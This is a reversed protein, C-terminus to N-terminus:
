KKKKIENMLRLFEVDGLQLKVKNIKKNIKDQLDESHVPALTKVLIYSKLAQKFQNQESYFDGIEIYAAVTYSIDELRKAAGLASVLLEHAKQPNDKKCLNALKTCSYYLGEHNNLQRDADISMEYYMKAASINKGDMSIEALNSYASALFENVRVDNSTQICRLYYKIALNTNKDDDLSLAYKFYCECLLPIDSLKEAESLAKKAYKAAAEIDLNNDELESLDLYVRVVMKSSVGAPSYLIRKYIEKAKDFKYVESYIQAISLLIENAKDPSDKLYLQYVKEYLKVAEETDQIKKHCIALKTYIIPEKLAYMLDDKYTLAKKYYVIASSFNFAEEYNQAIEIYEELSQPVANYDIESKNQTEMEQQFELNSINEMKKSINDESSSANLLKSDENSLQFKAAKGQTKVLPQPRYASSQKNEMGPEFGGTRAYSIYKFSQMAAEGIATRGTQAFLKEAEELKKTHYAIEQRMTLRSLFLERDFPKLPLEAEYVDILYKYIKTKTATSINKIYANKIYDKLYYKGFKESIIHKQFLFGIDAENAFYQNVLFGGTVGHRLVTLLTLLKSYRETSISLLKAILYDLFNKSTNKYESTFIGLSLKLTQMILVSLELLLFHGRTAKFLEDIEYNNGSISNENLYEKMEDITLPNLTCSRVSENSILDTQRFTRSSIVIKVKEFHSLYNIFDLIDKQTDKSRMNIEFSDFIFLMPVNCSKVFNNIKESFINSEVKPLIVKKENNYISFDRFISLLVDDLNIAEQYSNRFVLVDDSIFDLFCDAVYTKGSGMFGNLIFINDASEMFKLIQALANLNHNLIFSNDRPSVFNELASDDTRLDSLFPAYIEKIFNYTM